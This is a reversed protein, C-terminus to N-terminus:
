NKNRNEITKPRNTKIFKLLEKTDLQSKHSNSNRNYQELVQEIYKFTLSQSVSVTKQLFQNNVIITKSEMNLSQIIYNVRRRNRKESKELLRVNRLAEDYENKLVILREIKSKLLSRSTM